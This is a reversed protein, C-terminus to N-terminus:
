GFKPLRHVTFRALLRSYFFDPDDMRVFNPALFSRCKKPKGVVELNLLSYRRFSVHCLCDPLPSPFCSTRKCQKFIERVTTWLRSLIHGSINGVRGLNQTKSRQWANCVAFTVWGFKELRSIFPASALRILHRRMAFIFSVM